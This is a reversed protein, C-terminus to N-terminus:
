EPLPNRAKEDGHGLADLVGIEQELRQGIGAPALQQIQQVRVVAAGQVVQALVEVHGALSDCLVQGQELGRVQHDGDSTAAFLQMEEVRHWKLRDVLAPDGLELFRADLRQV